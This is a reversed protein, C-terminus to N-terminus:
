RYPSTGSDAARAPPARACSPPPYRRSRTRRAAARPSAPATRRGTRRAASGPRRRSGRRKSPTVKEAPYRFLLARPRRPIGGGERTRMFAAAARMSLPPPFPFIPFPKVAPPSYATARRREASLRALLFALSNAAVSVSAASDATTDTVIKKPRVSYSINNEVEDTYMESYTKPTEKAASAANVEETPAPTRPTHLEHGETVSKGSRFSNAYQEASNKGRNPNNFYSDKDFILNGTYNSYPTDTSSVSATKSSAVATSGFHDRYWSTDGSPRNPYLLERSKSYPTAYPASQEQRARQQQQQAETRRDQRLERRTKLDFEEGIAYLRKSREAAAAASTVTQQAQQLQQQVQSQAQEAAPAQAAAYNLDYIGSTDSTLGARPQADAADKKRHTFKSGRIASYLLYGFVITLVSFIVYAGVSTTLKAFPYVVLGFLVGGATTRFFSNEGARYCEGLYSGYGNYSIGGAAVTIAHILCVLSIFLLIASVTVKRSATRHKGTILVVGLYILVALVVYACYGFVGLMFSSIAFGVNGFIASRTVLIVLALLSFLELVIGVTERTM